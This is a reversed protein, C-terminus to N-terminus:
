KMRVPTILTGSVAVASFHESTKLRKMRNMPNKHCIYLPKAVFGGTDTQGRRGAMKSHGQMNRGKWSSAVSEHLIYHYATQM